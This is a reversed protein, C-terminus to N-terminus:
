ESTSPRTASDARIDGLLKRYSAEERERELQNRDHRRVALVLLTVPWVAVGMFFVALEGLLLVPTCALAAWDSRPWYVEVWDSLRRAAGKSLLFSTWVAGVLAVLGVLWTM